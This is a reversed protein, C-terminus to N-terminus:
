KQNEAPPLASFGFVSAKYVESPTNQLAGKLQKCCDLDFEMRVLFMAEQRLGNADGLVQM